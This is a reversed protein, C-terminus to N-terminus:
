LFYRSFNITIDGSISKIKDIILNVILSVVLFTPLGVFVLSILASFLTSKKIKIKNKAKDQYCSFSRRIM